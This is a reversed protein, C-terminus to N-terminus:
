TPGRKLIQRKAGVLKERELKMKAVDGRCSRIKADLPTLQKEIEIVRDIDAVDHAPVHQRRRLDHPLALRTQALVKQGVLM